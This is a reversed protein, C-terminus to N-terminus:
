KTLSPVCPTPSTPDCVTAGPTGLTDVYKVFHGWIDGLQSSGGSDPFPENTNTCGGSAGDWGTVYFAALRVVPVQVGAGNGNDWAASDTLLILVLRPDPGTAGSYNPYNNCFAGWRDNMGQRVPGVKAGQGISNTDACDPPTVADCIPTYPAPHVQYQNTCGNEIQDKITGSGCDIAMTGSGNTFKSRLVITPDAACKYTAGSMGTCPTDVQYTGFGVNLTISHSGAVLSGVLGNTDTVQVLKIAGSMDPDGGGYFQSVPSPIGLTANGNKLSISDPGVGPAIAFAGPLTSWSWANRGGTTDHCLPDSGNSCRTLAVNKNAASGDGLTAKINATAAISNDIWASLGASCTTTTDLDSFFPSSSGGTCMTTPTVGYLVAGSAAYGRIEYLFNSTAAQDYCKYLASGSTNACTGYGSGLGVRIGILSNAAVPITASGCSVVLAAAAVCSGGASLRFTCGSILNGGSCGTLEAGTATDIFTAMVAGYNTDPPAIPLSPTDSDSTFLQVRARAHENLSSLGFGGFFLPLGAETMKVDFMNPATCPGATQTDDAPPGGTGPQYTKSQYLVSLSGQNTAGVQSNYLSPYLPTSVGAYKTAEKYIGADGAGGGFCAQFQAGGAFAAADAQLQLHRRHEFWNGVDIVFIAFMFAVGLWIAVVVLVSGTEDHSIRKRIRSPSMLTSVNGGDLRCNWGGM